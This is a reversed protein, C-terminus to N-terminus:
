PEGNPRIALFYDRIYVRLGAPVREQALPSEAQNWARRYRVAYNSGDAPRRTPSWPTTAPLTGNVGGAGAGPGVAPGGGPGARRDSRAEGADSRRGEVAASNSASPRTSEARDDSRMEAAATSGAPTRGESFTSREGSVQPSSRPRVGVPLEGQGLAAAAPESPVRRSSAAAGEAKAEVGKPAAPSRSHENLAGAVQAAKAASDQRSADIEPPLPSRGIAVAISIGVVGASIWGLRPPSELSLEGPARRALRASADVVILRSMSDSCGAFELATVECDDLQFRSDLTTATRSLSRTQLLAIAGAITLALVACGVFWVGGQGPTPHAAIVATETAVIAIGAAAPVHRVFAVVALRRRFRMLQKLFSAADPHPGRNM